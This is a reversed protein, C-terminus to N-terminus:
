AVIKESDSASSRVNSISREKLERTVGLGVEFVRWGLAKLYPVESSV